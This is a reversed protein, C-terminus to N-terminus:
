MESIHLSSLSSLTEGLIIYFIDENISFKDIQKNDSKSASQNIYCHMTVADDLRDLNESVISFINNWRDSLVYFKKIILEKDDKFTKQLVLLSEDYKKADTRDKENLAKIKVAYENIFDILPEVCIPIAIKRVWYEDVIEHRKKILNYLNYQNEIKKIM